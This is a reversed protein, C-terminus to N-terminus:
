FLLKGLTSCILTSVLAAAVVTISTYKYIDKSTLWESNGHLLAALPSASPFVLSVNSLVCVCVGLMMPSVGAFPAYSCILPIILLAIVLNSFVNTLLLLVTSVIFVFVVTNPASGFLPSFLEKLFPQIGTAENTMSATMIMAFAMLMMTPWATSAKFTNALSIVPKGSDKGVFFGALCLLLVCIATKGITSLFAIPVLSKPLVEPLFMLLFFALLLLMIKAQSSSMKTEGSYVYSSTKIRSVDPKFVFRCLALYCLVISYGLCVAFIAFRWFDFTQGTQSSIAGQVMVALAKFPFASHGMLAALMIGIVMLTPYKEHPRYGYGECMTYLIAWPIIVGPTVSILGAVVYSTSLLLWSIVWPRGKAFRRSVMWNAIVRSVGSDTIIQAFALIFLIFLWTDNGFAASFAGTMTYLETTGLLVIGLLSPMIIDVTTFAYITGIFIGMVDLGTRTLSMFTPLNHFLLMIGISIACNIYYITNKSKAETKM